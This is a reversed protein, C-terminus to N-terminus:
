QITTGCISPPPLEHVTHDNLKDGDGVGIVLCKSPSNFCPTQASVCLTGGTWSPGFNVTVSTGNGSVTADGSVTWLYSTAGDVAVTSYTGSSNACTTTAGSVAAPTSVIGRLWQSKRLSSGCGNGAQVGIRYGSGNPAGFVVTVSPTTSIYPSPNGNFTTGVPGDWTYQTANAVAAVSITATTGNCAYAPMGLIPVNVSQAPPATSTYTLSGSIQAQCANGDAVYITSMGTPLNNM